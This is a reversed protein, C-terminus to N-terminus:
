AAIASPTIMAYYGEEVEATAINGIPELLRRRNLWDISELTTYEIAAFWRWPGSLWDMGRSRPLREIVSAICIKRAAVLAPM